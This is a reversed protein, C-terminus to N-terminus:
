LLTDHIWGMDRGVMVAVGTHASTAMLIERLMLVVFVVDMRKTGYDVTALTESGTMVTYKTKEQSTIVVFSHHIWRLGTVEYTTGTTPIASIATQDM